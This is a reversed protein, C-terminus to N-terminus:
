RYFRCRKGSTIRAANAVERTRVCGGTVELTGVNKYGNGMDFRADGAYDGRAVIMGAEKAPFAATLTATALAFVASFKM